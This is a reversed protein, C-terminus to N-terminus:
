YDQMYTEANPNVQSGYPMSSNYSYNKFLDKFGYKTVQSVYKVKEQKPPTPSKIVEDITKDEVKINEPVSTDSISQPYINNDGFSFNTFGTQLSAIMISIALFNKM